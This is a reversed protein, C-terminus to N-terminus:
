RDRAHETPQKDLIEAAASRANAVILLALSGTEFNAQLAAGHLDPFMTAFTINMLRLESLALATEGSPIFYKRLPTEALGLTPLYDEISFHANSDLRTFLGRQARQRHGLDIQPNVVSFDKASSLSLGVKLAWVVVSDSSDNILFPKADFNGSSAFGPSLVEAFGTFAFFAAVYPSRTWDLLPTILGYHRGIAWWDAESFDHSHLGPTGYALDKFDSLIRDLANQWTSRDLLSPEGTGSIRREWQSALKWESSAHGRFLPYTSYSPDGDAPFSVEAYDRMM